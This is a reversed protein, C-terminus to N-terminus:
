YDKPKTRMNEPYSDRIERLKVKLFSNFTSHGLNKSIYGLEEKLKENVGTIRVENEKAM